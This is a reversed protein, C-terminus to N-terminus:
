GAAPAPMLERVKGELNQLVRVLDSLDVTGIRLSHLLLQGHAAALLAYFSLQMVLVSQVLDHRDVPSTLVLVKLGQVLREFDRRMGRLYLRFVKRRAQRFKLGICRDYGPQDELFRFEEERLLREMPRYRSASYEAFWEESWDRSRDFPRRALRRVLLGFGLAALIGLLCAWSLITM